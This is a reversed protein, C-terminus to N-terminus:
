KKKKKKKFLDNFLEDVKEKVEPNELLGKAAGELAKEFDIDIKPEAVTGGLPLGGAKNFVDVVAGTTKGWRATPDGTVTISQKLNGDFDTEGAITIDAEKGDGQWKSFENYIKGGKIHFKQDVISYEFKSQQTLKLQSYLETFLPSGALTVNRLGLTGEGELTKKMADMSFGRGRLSIDWAMAAEVQGKQESYLAPNVLAALGSFLHSYKVPPDTVTTRLNWAPDGSDFLIKGSCKVDGDNLRFDIRRLDWAQERVGVEILLRKLEMADARVWPTQVAIDFDLGDLSAWARGPERQAQSARRAGDYTGKIDVSLNGPNPIVYDTTKGDKDRTRYTYDTPVPPSTVTAKGVIELRDFNEGKINWFTRLPGKMDQDALYAPFVERLKTLDGDFKMVLDVPGDAALFGQAQVDCGNMQVKGGPKLEIRGDSKRWSIEQKVNIATAVQPLAQPDGWKFFPVKADLAADVNGGALLKANVAGSVAGTGWEVGAMPMMAAVDLGKFAVTAEATIEKRPKGAALALVTANIDIEGPSASGAQVKATIEAAIEDPTAGPKANITMGTVRYTAGAAEDIYTVAVDRIAVTGMVITGEDGSKEKPKVPGIDDTSLTGDRRKVIRMEVGSIECTRLVVNSDLLPKIDVKVSLKAIKLFPTTGDKEYMVFNELEAPAWWGLSHDELTVKRSTAEYAATEIRIRIPGTSLLTPAMLVLLALLVPVAIAVKLLWRKKKAPPAATQKLLEERGEDIDMPPPVTEESM